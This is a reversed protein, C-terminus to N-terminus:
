KDAINNTWVLKNRVFQGEDDRVKEKIKNLM